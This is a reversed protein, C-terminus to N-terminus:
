VNHCVRERCSARGIEGGVVVSPDLGGEILLASIMSTTTTKGHTGTVCIGRGRALIEALMESRHVVQAGRTRAAQLEVNDKPVDTSYVVKDAGAQNEPHHGYAISIGIQELRRTRSSPRVDSGTVLAGQGHLVFAIASM